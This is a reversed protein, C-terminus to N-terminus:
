RPAAHAAQQAEWQKIRPDDDQVIEGNIIRVM